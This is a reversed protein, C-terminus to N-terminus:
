AQRTLTGNVVNGRSDYALCDNQNPGVRVERVDGDFLMDRNDGSGDIDGYLTNEDDFVYIGREIPDVAKIEARSSRMFIVDQSNAVKDDSKGANWFCVPICGAGSGEIPRGEIRTTGDGTIPTINQAALVPDYIETLECVSGLNVTQDELDENANNTIAVIVVGAAVAMLVLVATVILTQLTIGRQDAVRLDASERTVLIFSLGVLGASVIFLIIM